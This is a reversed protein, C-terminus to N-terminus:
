WLTWLRRAGRHAAVLDSMVLHDGDRRYGLLGYAARLAAAPSIGIDSATRGLASRLQARWIRRTGAIHALEVVRLEARNCATWEDILDTSDRHTM